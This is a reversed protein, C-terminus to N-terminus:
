KRDNISFELLATDVIFPETGSQIFNYELSVTFFSGTTNISVVTDPLGGYLDTGYLSDGYLAFGTGASLTVDIPQIKAPTLFDYKFALVGDITGEPDYYTTCKYMTKRIRPDNIPMYPTYFKAKIVAGDFTNGEEMEYVYGTEGSFISVESSDTRTSSTRYAKIGKLEGWNFDSSEQSTFQTGVYGVSDEEAEGKAFGFLRYQSKDRVVTSCINSNGTKFTNLEDQIARSALSLNFDGIRATAGLFRLGDPGLYVIDGGVEQITDPAACGIESAIESLQFNASSSGELQYIKSGTFIILKNRFTILGTVSGQLKISGAGNAASFDNEAFPACFVIKNKVGFFLHSSFAEVVTAALIDTTGDLRNFGEITNGAVPYNVGDVMVTNDTDDFSYDAFRIKSGGTGKFGIFVVSANDAPSSDLSPYISLTAVGTTITPVSLVTYVKEVGSITFTDGIKPAYTDSSFGDLDITAGTQSGGAVLVTGYSPATIDSWSAGTSTWISGNRVAIARGTALRTRYFYHLGEINDTNNDFSVSAKDAPSTDLVPTITLTSENTVTSFAVASVTYTGAVGDVTFTSGVEVATFINGIVLSTGSQGSGQVKPTGYSPVPAPAFKIFGNIRRYGGKISPEFNVLERASGPMKIGQQLRSLNSVLGGKFEIPYSEWGTPM